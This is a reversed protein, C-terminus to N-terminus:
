RTVRALHPSEHLAVKLSVLPARSAEHSIRRGIAATPLRAISEVADSIDNGVFLGVIVLDPDFEIAVLTFVVSFFAM